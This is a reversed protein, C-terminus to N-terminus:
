AKRGHEGWADMETLNPSIRATADSPAGWAPLAALCILVVALLLLLIPLPRRANVPVGSRGRLARPRCSRSPPGVVRSVRRAAVDAHGCGQVRRGPTKVGPPM